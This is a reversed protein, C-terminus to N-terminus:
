GSSTSPGRARITSSSACSPRTTGAARGSRWRREPNSPRICGLGLPIDLSRHPQHVVLADGKVEIRYVGLSLEELQSRVAEEEAESISRPRVRALSVQGNVSEHVRYGQPIEEVPGEGVSRAFVYRVKGTKTKRAHLFYTVGKRNRYSFSM